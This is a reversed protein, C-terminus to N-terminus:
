ILLSFVLSAKIHHLSCFSFVVLCIHIQWTHCRCCSPECFFVFFVLAFSCLEEGAWSVYQQFVVTTLFNKQSRYHNLIPGNKKGRKHDLREWVRPFNSVFLPSTHSFRCTGALDVSSVARVPPWFLAQEPFLSVSFRDHHSLPSEAFFSVPFPFLSISTSTDPGKAFDSGKFGLSSRHNMKWHAVTGAARPFGVCFMNNAERQQCSRNVNYRILIVILTGEPPPPLPLIYMTMLGKHHSTPKAHFIRKWHYLAWAYVYMSTALLTPHASLAVSTFYLIRHVIVVVLERQQVASTLRHLRPKWLLM